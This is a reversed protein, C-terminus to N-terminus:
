LHEAYVYSFVILTYRQAHNFSKIKYDEYLMTFVENQFGVDSKFWNSYDKLTRRSPLLLIGSNRVVDYAKPSTLM